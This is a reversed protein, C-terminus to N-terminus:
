LRAILQRAADAMPTPWGLQQAVWDADTYNGQAPLLHMEWLELAEVVQGMVFRTVALRATADPFGRMLQDATSFSAIAQDYEGMVFHAEGQAIHAEVFQPNRQLAEAFDKLALPYDRRAAYALGRTYYAAANQPNLRLAQTNDTIAAEYDGLGLHVLARNIYASTNHPTLKIVKTYDSIAGPADDLKLHKDLARFFLQEASLEEETPKPQQAADAIKQRIIPVEGTPTPHLEVDPTDSLFRMRVREMAADFFENTVNVGNYRALGQLSGTLFPRAANMDFNNVFLLVINRKLRMAEEIERRLWDEPDACRDLTGPTLILLFHTRAAIQGLLITDFTGSDISEVDMFVDFGHAHLDQFVARAIFSSAHRRYSIFVSPTQGHM